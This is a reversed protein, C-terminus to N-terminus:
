RRVHLKNLAIQLFKNREKTSLGITAIIITTMIFSFITLVVVRKLGENMITQLSLPLTFSLIMVPLVRTMVKKLYIKPSMGILKKTYYVRVYIVISYMIIYIIYTSYPPMGFCYAIWTLPFVMGGVITVTIQYNRIRGSAFIATVMSNGLVFDVFSSLVTLQTFIIAYDPVTGLWLKLIAPAELIIPVAIYLLLFSSYKASYCILKYVYDLNGAAYSKTIQPNVATTFSNVFQNVAANVQVAIGRAANVTVGFFVNILLNVGQTNLIGASSGLFNWGAFSLMNKFIDRDFIFHYKCEEFTHQCYTGYIIRILLAEAAYLIAYTILRDYPAWALLFVIFCKLSIDLISIWAYASMKEHAIIEANFPVSIINLVFALMSFQFVWNAAIMRGEPINMYKNLFWIGVPEGIIIIVLSMLLQINVGTCFILKLKDIDGKGLDYTIFRSIAASLAGSLITFMSVFGGVVNFIGYDSVGLQQLILRSTYLAIVMSFLMRLYLLVTNKAIRKNNDTNSLM